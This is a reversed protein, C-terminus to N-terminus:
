STGTDYRRRTPTELIVPVIVPVTFAEAFIRHVIARM